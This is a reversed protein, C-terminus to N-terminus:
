SFRSPFSRQFFSCHHPYCFSTFSAFAFTSSTTSHSIPEHTSYSSLATLMFGCYNTVRPLVQLPQGKRHKGQTVRRPPPHLIRHSHRHNCICTHRSTHHTIHSTHHTIHSMHCTVHSMHCTVHIHCTVCTDPLFICGCCGGSM